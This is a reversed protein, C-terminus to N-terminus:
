KPDPVDDLSERIKSFAAELTANAQEKAQQQILLAKRRTEEDLTKAQRLLAEAEREAAVLLQRKESEIAASADEKVSGVIVLAENTLATLKDLAQNAGQLRRAQELVNAGNLVLRKMFLEVEEDSLGNKVVTFEHGLLTRTAM